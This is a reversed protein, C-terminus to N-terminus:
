HKLVNRYFNAQKKAKPGDAGSAAEAIKGPPIKEGKPTGTSEHLGGEHFTIPKKGKRAPLRRLIGGGLMGPTADAKKDFDRDGTADAKKDEVVTSGKGTGPEVRFVRGNVYAQTIPQPTYTDDLMQTGGFKMGPTPATPAENAYLARM